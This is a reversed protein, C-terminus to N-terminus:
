AEDHGKGNTAAEDEEEKEKATDVEPEAEASVAKWRYGFWEVSQGVDGCWLGFIGTSLLLKRWGIEM